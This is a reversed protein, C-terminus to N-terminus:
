IIVNRLEKYGNIRKIVEIEKRINEWKKGMIMEFRIM